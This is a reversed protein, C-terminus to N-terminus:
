RRPSMAAEIAPVTSTPTARRGNRRTAAVAVRTESSGQVAPLHREEFADRVGLCIGAGLHPLHARREVPHQPVDTRGEGGALLALCPDPLEDRIGAM